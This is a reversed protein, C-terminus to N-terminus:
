KKIAKIYYDWMPPHGKLNQDGYNFSHGSKYIVQDITEIKFGAELFLREIENKTYYKQVMDGTFYLGRSFDIRFADMKKDTSKQAIKENQYRKFEQQYTYDYEERISDLSPLIALFHGDKKLSGGIAQLSKKILTEEPMIMSNISTALDVKLEFRLLESMSSHILELRESKIKQCENIMGISFDIGYIKFPDYRQLMKKILTGTGCGIDALTASKPILQDLDSWLPNSKAHTLPSIIEAKYEKAIQDWPAERNELVFGM